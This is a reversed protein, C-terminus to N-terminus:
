QICVHGVVTISNAGGTETAKIKIFPALLPEFPDAYNGATKGTAIDSATSPEVYTTGDASVLYELKCTGTGGVTYHISFIGTRNQLNIADSTYTGNAAITGSSFRYIEIRNSVGPKQTFENGM